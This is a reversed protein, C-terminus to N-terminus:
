AFLYISKSEWATIWKNELTEKSISWAIKKNVKKHNNLLQWNKNFTLVIHWKISILQENPLIDTTLIFLIWLYCLSKTNVSTNCLLDKCFPSTNEAEFYNQDAM